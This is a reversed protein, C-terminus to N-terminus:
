NACLSSLVKLIIEKSVKNLTKKLSLFQFPQPVNRCLWLSVEYTAYDIHIPMSLPAAEDSDTNHCQVEEAEPNRVFSALLFSLLVTLYMEQKIYFGKM